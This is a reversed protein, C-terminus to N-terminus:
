RRWSSASFAPPTARSTRRSMTHRLGGPEDPCQARPMSSSSLTRSLEYLQLCSSLPKSLGLVCSGLPPLGEKM